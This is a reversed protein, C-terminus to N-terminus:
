VGSGVVDLNAYGLGLTRYIHSNKEITKTPYSAMDVIIDQATIFLRVVHKFLKSDFSYKEDSFRCLNLSALNCASNNVWVFESCPNSAVIEGDNACTHYANITDAFQLGPDGCKHAAEAIERFLKRVSLREAVEGNARNRTEWLVDSDYGHLINRVEEMFADTVRVSNNGSQHKVVGYASDPDTFDTPMGALALIKVIDEEDAKAAIFKQIDPHDVDLIVM